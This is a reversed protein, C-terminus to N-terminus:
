ILFLNSLRVASGCCLAAGLVRPFWIIVPIPVKTKCFCRNGQVLQHNPQVDGEFLICWLVISFIVIPIFLGKILAPPIQELMNEAALYSEVLVYVTLESVLVLLIIILDRFWPYSHFTGELFLCPNSAMAADQLDLPQLTPQTPHREQAVVPSQRRTSVREQLGVSQEEHAIDSGSRAITHLPFEDDTQNGPSSSSRVLGSLRSRSFSRQVSSPFLRPSRCDMSVINELAKKSRLDNMTELSVTLLSHYVFMDELSWIEQLQFQRYKGYCAEVLTLLPLLLLLAAVWQGFGWFNEEKGVNIGNSDNTSSNSGPDRASVLHVTGWM